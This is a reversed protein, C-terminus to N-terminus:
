LRDEAIVVRARARRQDLFHRLADDGARRRYEAAVEARVAEFPPAAGAQRDVLTLVRAGVTVSEGPELTLVAALASAGLYDRLKGVPLLADPVPPQRASTTARVRLQEAAAFLGRHADYFRRLEDDDPEGAAARGRTVLDDIVAAVLANRLTRDGRELELEAGRQVLLEEDILRDLVRARVAPDVHRSVDDRQDDDSDSM